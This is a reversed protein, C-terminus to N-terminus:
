IEICDGSCYSRTATKGIVDWFRMPSLGTGPRMLALNEESYRQGLEIKGAAVISRRVVAQNKIESPTPIKRGSGLAKEINRINKIMEALEEPSLSAQHDPGPLNRDLTFHKEIVCAGRAVAASPIIIGPSNDSLGVPLDFAKFLTEMARLSVDAYDVPYETKCHLLTVREAIAEQGALSGYARRFAFESPIGQSDLMGFALAGLALEIDALTTMGTSLIVPKKTKGAAILLFPNCIEGSPIKILEVSLRKDLFDLSETDFATSLFKIGRAKCHGTLEFHMEHSLELRRLMQLQSNEQPLATQQYEAMPANECAIESAKFTQFKVFDAGAEAAVDILKIAMELSGNHNVGTEAIIVTKDNM